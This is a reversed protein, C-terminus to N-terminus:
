PRRDIFQKMIIFMSSRHLQLMLKVCGDLPILCNIFIAMEEFIESIIEIIHISRHGFMGQNQLNKLTQRLVDSILNSKELILSREGSKQLDARGQQEEFLLLGVGGVAGVRRHGEKGGATAAPTWRPASLLPLCATRPMSIATLRTIEIAAISSLATTEPTAAGILSLGGSRLGPLEGVRCGAKEAWAWGGVLCEKLSDNLPQLSFKRHRIHPVEVEEQPDIDLARSMPQKECLSLEEIVNKLTCTHEGTLCWCVFSMSTSICKTRYLTARPCIRTRWAGEENCYASMKVFPRGFM